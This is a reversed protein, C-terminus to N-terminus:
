MRRVRYKLYGEESEQLGIDGNAALAYRVEHLMTVMELFRQPQMAFAAHDPGDRDNDDDFHKEIVSAGLGVALVATTAGVTHDSLGVRTSPFRSLLTTVASVNAEGIPAPYSSVCHLVAFVSGAPFMAVSESIEDVNAMGTSLIVKKRTAAIERLLEKDLLEFSAVKHMDAYENVLAVDGPDFTTVIFDLGFSKAYDRLEPLWYAPVENRQLVALASDPLGRRSVLSDARFYQFKVADADSAAALSILAHARALEGDHNSGVEAIVYPRNL